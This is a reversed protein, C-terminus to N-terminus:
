AHRCSRIEVYATASKRNTPSRSRTREIGSATRDYTASPRATAHFGTTGCPTEAAISASIASCGTDGANARRRRHSSGSSTHGRQVRHSTAALSSFRGTREHNFQGFRSTGAAKTLRTTIACTTTPSTSTHQPRVHSSPASGHLSRAGPCPSPSGAMCHGPAPAPRLLALWAIVPRRPLTVPHWSHMIMGPCRSPTGAVCSWACPCAVPTPVCPGPARGLRHRWCTVVTRPRQRHFPLDRWSTNLSMCTGTLQCRPVPASAM